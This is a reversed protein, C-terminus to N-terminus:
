LAYDLIDTNNFYMSRQLIYRRQARMERPNKQILWRLIDLRGYMTAYQLIELFYISIDKIYLLMYLCNYEVIPQINTYTYFEFKQLMWWKFRKCNKMECAEKTMWMSMDRTKWGLLKQIKWGNLIHHIIRKFQKCIYYCVFIDIWESYSFVINWIDDYLM